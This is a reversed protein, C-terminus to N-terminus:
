DDGREKAKTAEANINKVTFQPLDLSFNQTKMAFEPVGLIFATRDMRFEPIGMVIRQEEMFPEPLDIYIPSFRVTCEPVDIKVGFGIDKTTMTCFSEPYEGTKVRVMRISPTHFIIAQDKMTVQPLDLSWEQDVMKIEPLDLSFEVTKWSVDIDLGVWVDIGTTDIDPMLDKAKGQIDEALTQSDIKLKSVLEKTGGAIVEQIADCKSM